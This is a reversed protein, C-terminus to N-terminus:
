HGIVIVAMKESVRDPEIGPSSCFQFLHNMLFSLITKYENAPLSNSFAQEATYPIVLAGERSGWM